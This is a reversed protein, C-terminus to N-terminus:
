VAGARRRIPRGSALVALLGMSFNAPDGTSGEATIFLEDTLTFAPRPSRTLSSQRLVRDGLPSVRCRVAAARTRAVSHKRRVSLLFTPLFFFFIGAPTFRNKRYIIVEALFSLSKVSLDTIDSIILTNASVHALMSLLGAASLASLTGRLCSTIAPSRRNTGKNRSMRGEM